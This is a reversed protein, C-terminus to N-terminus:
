QELCGLFGKAFFFSFSFFHPFNPSHHKLHLSLSVKKKKLGLMWSPIAITELAHLPTNPTRSLQQPPRHLKFCSNM